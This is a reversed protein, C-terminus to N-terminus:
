QMLYYYAQRANDARKKQFGVQNELEINQVQLQQILDVIMLYCGTFSTKNYLLQTITALLFENCQSSQVAHVGYFELGIM